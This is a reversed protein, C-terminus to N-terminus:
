HPIKLLRAANGSAIADATEASLGAMALAQTLLPRIPGENVIPWDSGAIVNEPGLLDVSARILAPDFGMTDIFVQRKLVPGAGGPILSHHAFGGALALGGFALATVVIKLQPLESLIGSELLAILAASNVTGRALLTGLRGYRALQNTLPQPNVPHVFVPVGLAAAAQLTPRAQPADILLDGRASDVFIGRFGLDRIAREVERGAREGDFADITALGALRAPHRAVLTALVDNVERITSHAVNGDADAILAAPTNVVRLSLDGQDIDFLLLNEDALKRNTERWRASQEPPFSSLTTPEFRAPVHHVHFDTISPLASPMHM